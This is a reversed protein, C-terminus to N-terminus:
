RHHNEARRDYQHEGGSAGLWFRGCRFNGLGFKTALLRWAKPHPDTLAVFGHSVRFCSM